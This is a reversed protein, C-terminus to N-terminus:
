RGISFSFGSGSPQPGPKGGGLPLAAPSFSRLIGLLGLLGTHSAGLVCPTRYPVLAPTKGQGAGPPSPLVITDDPLPHTHIKKKPIILPCPPPTFTPSSSRELNPSAGDPASEGRPAPLYNRNMYLLSSFVLPHSM